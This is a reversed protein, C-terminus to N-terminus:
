GGKFDSQHHQNSPLGTTRPSSDDIDSTKPNPQWKQLIPTLYSRESVGQGMPQIPEGLTENLLADCAQEPQPSKIARASTSTTWSPTTPVQLNLLPSEPAEGSRLSDDPNPVHNTLHAAAPLSALKAVDDRDADRAPMITSAIGMSEPSFPNTRQEKRQALRLKPFAGSSSTSTAISRPPTFNPLLVFPRGNSMDLIPPGTEDRDHVNNPDGRRAVQSVADLRFSSSPTTADIDTADITESSQSTHESMVNFSLSPSSFDSKGSFSVENANDTSMSLSSWTHITPRPLLLYRPHDESRTVVNDELVSEDLPIRSERCNAPPVLVFTDARGSRTTSRAQEDIPAVVEDKEESSDRTYSSSHVSNSSLKEESSARRTSHGPLLPADRRSQDQSSKASERTSMQEQNM